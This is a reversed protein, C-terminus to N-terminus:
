SEGLASEYLSAIKDVQGSRCFGQTEYQAPYVGKTVNTGNGAEKIIAEALASRDDVPVLAGVRDNIFGPLGGEDTVLNSTYVSSGSVHFRLHNPM